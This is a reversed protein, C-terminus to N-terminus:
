RRARAPKDAREPAAEATKSAPKAAIAVGGPSLKAKLTRLTEDDVTALLGKGQVDTWGIEELLGQLEEVKKGPFQKPLNILKYTKAAMLLNRETLRGAGKRTRLEHVQEEIHVM